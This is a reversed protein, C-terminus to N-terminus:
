NDSRVPWVYGDYVKDDYDVVGNHMGVHWAGTSGGEYTTSSWYYGFHVNTFFSSYGAPLKPSGSVSMDLLSALEEREPLRWGKRDSISLNACYNIASQWTKYGDINANRAWVLGTEKDLVAQDGMVLEFREAAPLKQHWTPASATTQVTGDPFVVGNGTGSVKLNGAVELKEDPDTTGIGVFGDAKIVMRAPNAHAADENISFDGPGTLGSYLNWKVSSSSLLQIIPAAIVGDVELAQSPTTTGIGVNGNVYVKGDFYGAYNSGSGNDSGYIGRDTGGIYGFAGGANAGWVGPGTGDNTASLLGSTSSGSMTDGDRNVYRSDHSHASSAFASSDLGDLLDSDLNSGAGDNDLIEAITAGDAIKDSSVAGSAIKQTEVAGDAIMETTVGGDIVSDTKASQMSFATSTFKLRPIMEADTGVTIGLYRDVDFINPDILNGPQGLIVNYIGKTVTVTQSEAWLWTVITPTSYIAFSIGYYGDPVPNGDSDTLAGQYNIQQPVSAHTVPLLVTLLLLLGVSCSMMMRSKM